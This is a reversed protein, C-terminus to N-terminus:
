PNLLVAATSFPVVTGDTIAVYLVQFDNSTTPTVAMFDDIYGEATSNLLEGTPWLFRLERASAVNEWDEYDVTTASGASAGDGYFVKKPGLFPLKSGAVIGSLDSIDGFYMKYRVGGLHLPTAAQTHQMLKPCGDSQYQVVWKSGSWVAYAQNVNYTACGTIKDVTFVMFTGVTEGWRWDDLTPYGIKFQRANIIKSNGNSDGEIPIAIVPQCGGGTSYDATTQCVISSGANFDKGLYGDRSDIYMIRTKNDAGNAEFYLRVNAGKSSSMPIAQGANIEKILTAATTPNILGSSGAASTFALYSSAVSSSAALGTIATGLGRATSGAPGYYLQLRNKVADPADSGFRMVAIRVNGDSVVKTLGSITNGSGQLQWYEDSTKGTVSAATGAESCAATKCATLAITYSTSAKLNTLTLSTASGTASFEQNTNAISETATIRYHDVSYGTPATWRLSLKSSASFSNSGVTQPNPNSVSVASPPALLPLTKLSNGDVVFRGLDSTKLNVGFVSTGNYVLDPISLVYQGSALVVSPPNVAQSLATQLKISAPDLTFALSAIDTTQLTASFAVRSGGSAYEVYPLSLTWTSGSVALTAPAQALALPSLLATAATILYRHM